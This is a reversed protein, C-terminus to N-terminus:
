VRKRMLCPSFRFRYWGFNSKRNNQCATCKDVMFWYVFWGHIVSCDQYCSYKMKFMWHFFVTLFMFLHRWLVRDAAAILFCTEVQWMKVLWLTLIPRLAHGLHELSLAWISVGSPMRQVGGMWKSSAGTQIQPLSRYFLSDILKVSNDSVGNAKLRALMLPQYLSDFAKSMYTSLFGVIKHEDLAKKWNETLSLLTGIPM